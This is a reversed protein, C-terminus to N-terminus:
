DAGTELVHSDGPRLLLPGRGDRARPDIVVVGSEGFVEIRRGERVVIYTNDDIGVGLLGPQSVVASRLREVRNRSLVHQDVVVRPWLGLGPATHTQGTQPDPLEGTIMVRSVAAAGASTGGVLAGRHYRDAITEIIGTGKLATILRNQDGSTFWILDASRAQRDAWDPDDLELLEAHEAGAERWLDPLTAWIEFLTTSHPVGLVRASRGGALALLHRRFAATTTGGGHLVLLGRPIQPM